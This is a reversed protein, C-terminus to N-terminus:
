QLVGIIQDMAPVGRYSGDRRAYIRCCGGSIVEANGAVDSGDVLITPSGFTTVYGPANPSSREWETWQAECGAVQCARRLQERADDVNPCDADYILEIRKM